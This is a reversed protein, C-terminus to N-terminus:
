NSLPVAVAWAPASSPSTTVPPVRRRRVTMAAATTRVTVVSATLVRPASLVAPLRPAPPR